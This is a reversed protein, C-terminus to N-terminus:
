KSTSWLDQVFQIYAATTDIENAGHRAAQLTFSGEYGLNRLKNFITDFDVDGMGLPVTGGGVLCDKIHVHSIYNGFTRLEEESDFGLAASNGTDYTVRILPHNIREMLLIQSSPEFDTELALEVGYDSLQEGIRICCDLFKSQASEQKISSEELLPLVIRRAGIKFAKDVLWVLKKSGGPDGDRSKELVSSRMYYDACITEIRVGTREVADKITSLGEGSSLPNEDMPDVDYIFEIYNLGLGSASVFEDPWTRSPFAQIAGGIPESLRGQMIGLRLPKRLNAM